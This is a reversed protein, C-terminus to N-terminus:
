HLRLHFGGDEVAFLVQLDLGHGNGANPIAVYQYANLRREGTAGVYFYKATTIVGAHDNRRGQKAMFQRTIDYGDTLVHAIKTDALPNYRGIGSGTQLAEIAFAAVLIEAFIKQEVVASVGLVDANRRADHLPIHVFYGSM